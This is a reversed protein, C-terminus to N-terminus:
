MRSAEIFADLAKKIDGEGEKCHQKALYTGDTADRSKIKL